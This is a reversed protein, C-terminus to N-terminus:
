SNIITYYLNLKEQVLQRNRYIDTGWAFEVYIVSLGIGSQSRVREVQPLGNLYSEIPFTVRTEVEEPAMGGAETLVTVLPKNLDPFVDVPTRWATIAGYVLLLAAVALVFLRNHLSNRVIWNFM